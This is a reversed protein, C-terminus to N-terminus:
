HDTQLLVHYKCLVSIARAAREPSAYNSVAGAMELENIEADWTGPPASICTIVPKPQHLDILLDSIGKVLERNASAFMIFLLIGGVNEDKMVSDIMEKTAQSNYWIPGMDVPNNRMSMPPLLEDIRRQTKASFQALRIGEAECVDAGVMGPGAQSTLVAVTSSRPIPCASFAKAADLISESSDFSLINAQRFAGEYLEKSGALSGTHSKSAINSVSASGSKWALIPKRKGCKQATQVIRRPTEVGEMYMVIVSTYPDEILYDIMDAFDLNLHNGLGVIKSLKIDSRISLFSMLHAIGGSQSVLSISGEEVLSFEPTFSANLDVHRNVIGFTNPGIVPINASNALAALEDQLAGGSPDDIEKFGATILVIGKVKRAVCERFVELVSQAPVVVVALDIEGSVHTLSSATSIGMVEARNPNIPILTGRFPHITLSKMVHFGLKSADDTAGVVAVSKPEFLPNLRYAM